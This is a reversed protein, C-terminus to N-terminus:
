IYLSSLRFPLSATRYCLYNKWISQRFSMREIVAVPRPMTHEIPTRYVLWISSCVSGM